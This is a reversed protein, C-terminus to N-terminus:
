NKPKSKRKKGKGNGKNQISETEELLDISLNVVAIVRQYFLLSHLYDENKFKIIMYDYLFDKLQNLKGSVLNFQHNIKEDVGTQDELKDIYNEITEYLREFQRYLAQKQIAEEKDEPSQQEEGGGANDGEESGGTDESGDGGEDDSNDIAVESDSDEGDTESDTDGEIEVDENDGSDDPETEVDDETEPEEETETDDEDDLDIEELGALDEDEGSDADDDAGIDEETDDIDVEESKAMDKGNVKSSRKRKNMTVEIRRMNARPSAKAEMFMYNKEYSTMNDEEIISIM